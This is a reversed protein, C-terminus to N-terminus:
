ASVELRAVWKTQLVGPRNPAILRAPYGHDLALPEGDLALALLTRDDDAFNGQLVTHKYPGSEQLSLVQVESDAPADVLDLLTRVRVGTWTGSASWGEVCAIPLTQTTQEMALLEDRTMSVEQEGYAVTFRYAASTAAPAVKAAAASKNIPIGQPGDGSRVGFVSVRRLLPVTSGATVLVAVGAALWTTRLLGRRSLSGPETASPRDHTTDEVDSTLAGRIIPLKVAIHVVLAGITIWAIAYHTTRFSFSWPYWQASNALGSALQFIAGAVLVAISGRELVELLLKRVGRPPRIFLRPYVTWLKVLLLPVAATGTIVHLGQTVRYGWSPSTPFPIPQSVNQAYHSILGTAFCIGFCIGLWTGVRATVAASRLRSRFDSPAPVPVKM